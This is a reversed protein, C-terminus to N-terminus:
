RTVVPLWLTFASGRGEETQLAVKGGHGQVVARVISLGLGSGHANSALLPNVQYFKEFVRRVHAKPIGPGDDAVTLGIQSGRHEARIQVRTTDDGHRIANQVLNLVAEAIADRDVNLRPLDPPLETHVRGSREDDMLNHTRFAHLADDVVDQVSVPELDYVRRGAEMRAWNLVREIRRSLRDTEQDLLELCEAVREPDQLRGSRLTEVFMRISTLPTRLEHSVSSVFDTQLRSLRLERMTSSLTTYVGILVTLVLVVLGLLYLWSTSRALETGAIPDLTLRYDALAGELPLSVAHSGSRWSAFTSLSSDTREPLESLEVVTDRVALSAAREGLTAVDPSWAVRWGDLMFVGYTTGGIALWVTDGSIAQAAIGTTEASDHWVEHVTVHPVVLACQPRECTAAAAHVDDDMRSVDTLLTGGVVVLQETWEKEIQQRMAIRQNRVAYLGYVALLLTPVVVTGIVLWLLRRFAYADGLGRIAM